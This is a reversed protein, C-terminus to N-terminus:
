RGDGGALEELLGGDGRREELVAPAPGGAAAQLEQAHLLAFADGRLDLAGAGVVEEGADEGVGGGAGLGHDAVDLDGVMREDAFDHLVGEGFGHVEFAEEFDQASYCGAGDAAEGDVRGDWRTKACSSMLAM